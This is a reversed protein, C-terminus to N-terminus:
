VRVEGLAPLFWEDILMVPAGATDVRYNRAVLAQRTNACRAAGAHRIPEEPVTRTVEVGRSSLARGIPECTTALLEAVGCPLRDPVLVTEAYVYERRSARGRLVARRLILPHGPDVGLGNSATAALRVHEVRTADIADGTWAELLSTVTGANSALADTLARIVGARDTARGAPRTAM